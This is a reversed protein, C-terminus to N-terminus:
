RNAERLVPMWDAEFDGSQGWGPILDALNAMNVMTDVANLAEQSILAAELDFTSPTDYGALKLAILRMNIAGILRPDVAATYAWPSNEEQMVGLATNSVDIGFIQIEERGAETLARAAGLAFADWTAFIADIEGVPHQLLMAAVANQTQLSTDEAAVGFRGVEVLGPNNQLVEQYVNNRRVMPAFGDVWLYIINADGGTAELLASLAQSALGEDDQSTLTAGPLGAIEGHSDFAVVPIGAEAIQRIYGLTGEDDGHSIIFGDYGQNIAQSLADHFQATNGNATFTTVDFGFSQGEQQAGALFQATHDDGGIMRLVMIRPQEGTTFVEPVGELDATPNPGDATSCGLLFPAVALATGVFKFIKRIKSNYM